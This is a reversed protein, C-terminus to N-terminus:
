CSGLCVCSYFVKSVYIYKKKHDTFVFDLMFWLLSLCIIVGEQLRIAM